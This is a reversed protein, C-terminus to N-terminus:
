YYETLRDDRIRHREFDAQEDEIYGYDAEEFKVELLELLDMKSIEDTLCTKHYYGGNIEAYENGHYIAEYCYECTYVEKGSYSM